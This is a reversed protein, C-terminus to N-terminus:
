DSRFPVAQPIAQLQKKNLGIKGSLSAEASSTDPIVRIYHAGREIATEETL